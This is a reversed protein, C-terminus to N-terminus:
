HEIFDDGDFILWGEGERPLAEYEIEVDIKDSDKWNAVAYIIWQKLADGDFPNSDGLCIFIKNEKPHYYTDGYEGNCVLYIGNAIKKLTEVDVISKIQENLIKKIIKKSM